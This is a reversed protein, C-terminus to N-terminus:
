PVVPLSLTGPALPGYTATFVNALRSNIYAQDGSALVLQLRHGAAFQHVIGPLTITTPQSTDTIRIPSVLRVPLMKTGDPAVDYIKGYVVPMTTPGAMAPVLASLNLTVSPIGAINLNAGLPPTAWSAFTGPLDTPSISNFPSMQQLGSTESYSGVGPGAPASVIQQSGPTVLGGAPVLDSAGSLSWNQPAGVPWSSAQGYAPAASVIPDYGIWDRFYEVAPGTDVPKDKLYRDFWTTILQEEYTLHTPDGFSVGDGPAASVSHGWSQIVLKVPAGNAQLMARNAVAEDINFLTDGEGQMLLTPIHVTSGYGVMSAHRLFAVTSPDPLGTAAANAIGPCARPDFGPCGNLTTPVLTNNSMHQIPQSLGDAFFITSWQWKASGGPNDQWRYAPSSNSPALSYALDNWTAIPVIADLKPTVSATAFQIAGGYSGGIMGVRPDNPGDKKVAPLTGLFDILQSAAAGDWDPDDLEIQCTSAGFGLGSYSLGVYGQTALYRGGAAQDNKSGGFGNTTLIAPATGPAPMPDPYYLDYSIDCSTDHNPGLNHAHFVQNAVVTYGTAAVRSPTTLLPVSAVLSAACALSM